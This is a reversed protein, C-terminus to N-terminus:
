FVSLFWLMGGHRTPVCAIGLHFKGFYNGINRAYAKAALMDKEPMTVGRHYKARPVGVQGSKSSTKRGPVTIPIPFMHVYDIYQQRLKELIQEYNLMAMRLHKSHDDESADEAEV